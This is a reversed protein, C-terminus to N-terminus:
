IFYRRMVCVVYCLYLTYNLTYAYTIGVLGYHNLMYISILVFSSTFILESFIFHKTLAKAIMLYAILWSAIKIVDGILQWFFLEKMPIFDETFLLWVILDRFLWITGSMIAVIPIIFILARILENRIKAKGSIESLRPLYYTGLTTTVVSLYTASIYWIAQWYGAEDWGLNEGIYNRLVITSVPVTIASTIGMLAYKGLKKAENSDFRKKFNNVFVVPHKRVIWISVLLVISQNTVLAILAGDLSWTIILLTTFILSFLSQIINIKVWIEIEKLGNLISIIMGNAVFLIITFGFLIFIYYYKDTKLLYQSLYVSFIILTVGTIVSTFFSIKAAASFLIPIRPSNKGYEATYKTVGTNIAGQAVTTMLQIFNHFQGILALGAPGIFISIAKNIVLGAIIKMLTAIFSLVSTRYLNM